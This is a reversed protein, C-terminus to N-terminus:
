YFEYDFILRLTRDPSISDLGVFYGVEWQLRSGGSLRKMGAAVPGMALTDEGVHLELGPEFAPSLRHRLQAHVATEFEDKIGSGWEYALEFNATGVWRGIERVAILSSSVEWLRDDIERELEFLLGWDYAYEGQETLQHKVEIEYAELDFPDNDTRVGIAYIEAAWSDNLSRAFSLSYQDRSGLVDDDSLFARLEFEKELPQVYPDYVRDIVQGDAFVASASLAFVLALAALWRAYQPCGTM